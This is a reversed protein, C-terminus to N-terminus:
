RGAGQGAPRGCRLGAAFKEMERGRLLEASGGCAGNFTEVMFGVMEDDSCLDLTENKYFYFCEVLEDLIGAYNDPTIYPFRLLGMYTKEVIWGGFEIRGCARM